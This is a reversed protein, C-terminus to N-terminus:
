LEDGYDGGGDDDNYLWLTGHIPFAEAHQKWTQRDQAITQWIIGKWYEDLGDRWRRM